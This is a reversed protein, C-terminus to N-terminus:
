FNAVCAHGASKVAQENEVVVRSRHKHEAKTLIELAPQENNMMGAAPADCLLWLPVCSGLGGSTMSSFEM